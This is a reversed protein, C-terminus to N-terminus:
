RGAVLGTAAEVTVVYVRGQPSLMTLNYFLVKGRNQLQAEILVGPYQPGIIMQIDRLPM